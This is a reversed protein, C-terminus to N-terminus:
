PARWRVGRCSPSCSWATTTSIVEPVPVGAALLVTTAISSRAAATPQMVKLFVARDGQSARLVARRGPRYSVVDIAIPVSPDSGIDAGLQHLTRGVIDPYCVQPLM